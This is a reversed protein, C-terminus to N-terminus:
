RNVQSLIDNANTTITVTTGTESASSISFSDLQLNEILTWQNAGINFYKLIGGKSDTRSDAMYITNGDPSIAFQNTRLSTTSPMARRRSLPRFPSARVACQHALGTGVTFPSDLAPVGNAQVGAGASAFLQGTTTGASRSVCRATPSAVEATVQTSATAAPNGFPVYRVGNSTAVWFGLGDASVAM